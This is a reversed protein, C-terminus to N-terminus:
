VIQYSRSSGHALSYNITSSLRGRRRATTTAPHQQATHHPRPPLELLRHRSEPLNEELHRVEAKLAGVRQQLAAINTQQQETIALLLEVTATREAQPITPVSLRLVKAM